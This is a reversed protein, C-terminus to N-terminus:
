GNTAAQHRTNEPTAGAREDLNSVEKIEHYSQDANVSWLDHDTQYLLNQVALMGTLMAHDQNNYRHLGNRGITQLNTFSGVYERLTRLHSEYGSDYIPYSKPVRFVCGDVIDSSEVLGLQGLENKAQSILQDDPTNWVEDGENCFYELGLSSTGEEALMDPSWNGFNQIRGVKVQPDHVYIWNDPFLDRKRVILCVTLFDRYRLGAAAELINSPPPPDLSKVLTTIPMSSVFDTGEIYKQKGSKLQVTVGFVTNESRHIRVVVANTEVQGGADEIKGQVAEWMMGPGLRPYRFEEILSRINKGTNVFMSYVASSLSLNKIRQAAWEARIESCPIGWVKETYSEFFIKFLRRGFRNTVWQEFTEELRYPLLQWRIYSAIIRVSDVLGLIGLVNLPKLPYDFYQNRYFIRSLRPRTLFERGLIENWFQNVEPSKTFFRHGGMDFRYGKYEETRAIGGVRHHAELVETKVGAQILRYAATLGSPGGGIVVAQREAAELSSPVEQPRQLM